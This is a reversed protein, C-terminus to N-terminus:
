ESRRTGAHSVHASVNSINRSGCTHKGPLGRHQRAMRERGKGTVGVNRWASECRQGRPFFWNETAGSRFAMNGNQSRAKTADPLPSQNPALAAVHMWDPATGAHSLFLGDFGSHGRLAPEANCGRGSPYATSGLTPRAHRWCHRQLDLSAGIPGFRFALRDIPPGATCRLCRHGYYLIILIILSEDESTPSSFSLARAPGEPRSQGKKTPYPSAIPQKVQVFRNRLLKM